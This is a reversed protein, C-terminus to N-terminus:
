TTLRLSRTVRSTVTVFTTVFVTAGAGIALAWDTGLAFALTGFLLGGLHFGGWAVEYLGIVRGRIAESVNVQIAALGLSTHIAGFMGFLGSFLISMLLNTSFGFALIALAYFCGTLLIWAGARKVSGLWGVTTAGIVAGVGSATLIAGLGSAGTDVTEKAISPALLLYGGSLLAQAVTFLLIVGLIQQNLVARVGDNLEDVMSKKTRPVQLANPLSSIIVVNIAFLLAAIGYSTGDPLSSLIVGGIAPGVVRTVHFASQDFSTASLIHHRKVLSPLLAQRATWDLGLGVGLAAGTALIQWVQIEGILDAVALAAVASGAILSGCLLIYRRDVRDALVGGLIPLLIGPVGAAAGLYAIYLTSNTLEFLLFAQAIIVIQHATGWAFTSCAFRTFLPEGIVIFRFGSGSDKSVKVTSKSAKHSRDLITNTGKGM